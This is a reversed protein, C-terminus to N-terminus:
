VADIGFPIPNMFMGGEDTFYYWILLVIFVFVIYYNVKKSLGLIRRFILFSILFYVPYVWSAYSPSALAVFNVHSFGILESVIILIVTGVLGLIVFAPYKTVNSIHM